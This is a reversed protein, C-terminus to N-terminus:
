PWYCGWDYPGGGQPDGYAGNGYTLACHADVNIPFRDITNPPLICRWDYAGSGTSPIIGAEYGDGYQQRCALQMDVGGAWTRASAPAALLVLGAVVGFISSPALM